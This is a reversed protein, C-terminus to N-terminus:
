SKHKKHGKGRAKDFLLKFEREWRRLLYDHVINALDPSIFGQLHPEAQQSVETDQVSQAGAANYLWLENDFAYKYDPHAEYGKDLLDYPWLLSWIGTCLKFRPRGDSRNFCSAVFGLGRDTTVERTLFNTHTQKVYLGTKSGEYHKILEIKLAMIRSEVTEMLRKNM